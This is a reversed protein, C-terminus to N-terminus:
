EEGAVVLSFSSSSSSSSSRSRSSGGGGGGGGGGGTGCNKLLYSSRFLPRMRGKASVSM